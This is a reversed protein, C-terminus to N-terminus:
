LCVTTTHSVELSDYLLRLLLIPVTTLTRQTRGLHFMQHPMDDVLLRVLYVVSNTVVEGTLVSTSLLTM